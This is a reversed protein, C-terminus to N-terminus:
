QALREKLADARARLEPSNGLNSVLEKELENFDYQQQEKPMWKPIPEKRGGTTPKSYNHIEYFAAWGRCIVEKLYETVSMGSKAALDDLKDVNMQIARDTMAARKAKRVKLWEGLLDVVEDCIPKEHRMAYNTIIADFSQKSGKEKTSSKKTSLKKTSVVNTNLQGQNEVGQFELGQFELGLNEVGQKEIDQIEPTQTEMNQPKEFIDYEYEYRGSETQDPLKKTVILYGNAKLEKLTSTIATEKEKSIAVLGAISYNWEDSLSLMTSLLGKAKLSLRKDKLHYNSMVTYDKTKNVRIVAM